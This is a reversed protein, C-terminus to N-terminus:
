RPLRADLHAVYKAARKQVRRVTYILWSVGRDTRYEVKVTMGPVVPYYFAGPFLMVAREAELTADPLGKAEEILQGIRETTAARQEPSLRALAAYAVALEHLEEETAHAPTRGAHEELFRLIRLAKEPLGVKLGLENRLKTVLLDADAEVKPHRAISYGARHWLARADVGLAAAIADIRTRPPLRQGTEWRSWTDVTVQKGAPMRAVAEAIKLRKTVKRHHKLWKAFGRARDKKDESV